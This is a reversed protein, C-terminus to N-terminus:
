RAPAPIKFWGASKPREDLVFYSCPPCTIETSRFIGGIVRRCTPLISRVPLPVTHISRFVTRHSPESHPVRGSERAEDSSDQRHGAPAGGDVPGRGRLCRPVRCGAPSIAYPHDWSVLSTELYRLLLVRVVGRQLNAFCQDCRVRVHLPFTLRHRVGGSFAV